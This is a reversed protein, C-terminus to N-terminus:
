APHLAPPAAQLPVRAGFAAQRQRAAERLQESLASRGSSSDAAPSAQVREGVHLRFLTTAERGQGDRAQLRIALEGQFGRPPALQFVGTDPNLQIWAPLASGDALSANVTVRVDSHTHFFSDWPVSVYAVGDGEVFQDPMGRFVALLSGTDPHVVVRWGDDPAETYAENFAWLAMARQLTQRPQAASPEILHTPQVTAGARLPSLTSDFVQPARPSPTTGVMIPNSTPPPQLPSVGNGDSQPPLSQPPPSQPPPSQPPPAGLVSITSTSTDSLEGVDTATATVTIDGGHGSPPLVRLFGAKATVTTTTGRLTVTGTGHGEVDGEVGSADFTGASLKLQLTQSEEPGDVDSVVIGVLAVSDGSNVTVDQAPTVDPRDNVPTVHLTYTYTASKDGNTDTVQFEFGAYNDDHENADPRFRIAGGASQLQSKTFVAGTVLPQWSTQEAGLYEWTGQGHLDIIEVSALTDGDVDEFNGFDAATLLYETDEEVPIDKDALTPADGEPTVRISLTGTDSAGRSDRVTYSVIPFDGHYNPAPQFSFTSASTGDPSLNLTLSGKGEVTFTEGPWYTRAAGDATTFSLITLANGDSDSDNALVDIDRSDSDEPLSIVDDMAVPPQNAQPIRESLRNANMSSDLKVEHEALDDRLALFYSTAGEPPNPKHADIAAERSGFGERGVTWFLYGEFESSGNTTHSIWGLLETQERTEPDTLTLIVLVDNGVGGEPQSPHIVIAEIQGQLAGIVDAKRGEIAYAWSLHTAEAAAAPSTDAGDAADAGAEAVVAAAAGDFMFRAELALPRPRPPVIRAGSVADGARPLSTTDLIM